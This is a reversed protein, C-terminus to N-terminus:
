AITRRLPSGVDAGAVNSRRWTAHVITSAHAVSSVLASWLDCPAFSCSRFVTFREEHGMLFINM